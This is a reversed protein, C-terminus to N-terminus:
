GEVRRLQLTLRPLEFFIKPGRVLYRGALRRPNLLLRHLWELGLRQLWPPARRQEGTLFDVAAGVCLALGRARGRAQLQRSLMEQRPSGVALLCLRFPSVAEIRALCGEVEVPDHIFGMPVELHVLDTLGYRERLLEAQRATSGVLVIREAALKGSELLCRTLDSGPCTRVALGRTAALYRALFRSDLLVYAAAAYLERFAADECYRILHDVNPTVVYGFASSGFSSAIREFEEVDYDDLTLSLAAAPAALPTAVEIPMVTGEKRDSM